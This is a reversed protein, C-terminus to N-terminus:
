VTDVQGYFAAAATCHTTLTKGGDCAAANNFCVMIGSNIDAAPTM